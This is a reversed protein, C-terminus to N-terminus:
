CSRMVGVLTGQVQIREPAYCRPSLDPNHPILWIGQGDRRLEKLTVEEEDILVVVREGNRYDGRRQLVVLDGDLIADEMMSDGKVRLVFLDDRDRHIAVPVEMPLARSEPLLPAGAAVEGYYPLMRGAGAPLEEVPAAEAGAVEALVINNGSGHSRELFGKDILHQVHKHITSVASSGVGDAIEKLTPSRGEERLFTRIFQLVAQQRKTLNASKM